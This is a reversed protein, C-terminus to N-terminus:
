RSGAAVDRDEAHQRDRQGVLVRRQEDELDVKTPAISNSLFRPQNKAVSNSDRTRNMVSSPSIPSSIAKPSSALKTTETPPKWGGNLGGGSGNGDGCRM